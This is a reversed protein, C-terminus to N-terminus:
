GRKAVGQAWERAMSVYTGMSDEVAAGGILAVALDAPLSQHDMESLILNIELQWADRMQRAKAETHGSWVVGKDNYSAALELIRVLKLAHNLMVGKM